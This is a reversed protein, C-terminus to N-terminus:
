EDGGGFDVCGTGAGRAQDVDIAAPGMGSFSAVQDPLASPIQATLPLRAAPQSNISQIPGGTHMSAAVSMVWPEQHLVTGSIRGNVYDGGSNGAAAAVFIGANTAALFAQSSAETWPATGGAISYNLVDVIGDAVAQDIAAVTASAPCGTLEDGCARYIVLNAHPAIGSIRTTYTALEAPVYPNPDTYRASRNNGAATSAVHSGHGVYYAGNPDEVSFPHALSGDDLEDYVGIIKDNCGAISIGAVACQGIFHGSGLPNQIVYGSDDQASFSPSASNYGTDIVGVVIGDGRYGVGGDFGGAFLTDQGASASWWVSAAGIFGPGIDTTLPYARDEEVSLVDRLHAIKNAENSTLDVVIADLAAQMERRATVVRGLSKAMTGLLSAQKNRLFGIYSQAQTSHVDLRLRGNLAKTRPIENYPLSVQNGRADVGDFMALPKDVLRVIYSSRAPNALQLDAAPSPMACLLAVM